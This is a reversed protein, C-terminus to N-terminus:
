EEQLYWVCGESNGEAFLAHLHVASRVTNTHDSFSLITNCKSKLSLQWLILPNLHNFSLQQQTWDLDGRCSLRAFLLRVIYTWVSFPQFQRVKMLWHQLVIWAHEFHTLISLQQADKNNSRGNWANKKKTLAKHRSGVIGVKLPKFPSPHKRSAAVLLALCQDAAAGFTSRTLASRELEVGVYWVLTKLNPAFRWCVKYFEKNERM